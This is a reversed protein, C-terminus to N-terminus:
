PNADEKARLGSRFRLYYTMAMPTAIIPKVGVSNSNPALPAPPIYTSAKRRKELSNLTVHPVGSAPDFLQIKYDAKPGEDSEKFTIKVRVLDDGNAVEKLDDLVEKQITFYHDNYDVKMFEYWGVLCKEEQFSKVHSQDGLFVPLTMIVNKTNSTYVEAGFPKFRIRLGDFSKIIDYFKAFNIEDMM